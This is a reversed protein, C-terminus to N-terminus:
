GHRMTEEHAVWAQYAKAPTAAQDVYGCTCRWIWHGLGLPAKFITDMECLVTVPM